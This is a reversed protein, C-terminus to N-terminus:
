SRRSHKSPPGLLERTREITELLKSKHHDLKAQTWGAKSLMYDRASRADFVGLMSIFAGLGPNAQSVDNLRFDFTYMYILVQHTQFRSTTLLYWPRGNTTPIYDTTEQEPRSRHLDALYPSGSM